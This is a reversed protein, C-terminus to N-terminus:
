NLTSLSFGDRRFNIIKLKRDEKLYGRLKSIYVDMTRSSLIDDKGWIKNLAFDRSLTNNINMVLLRMLQNEKFSLRRRNNMKKYILFRERSNYNYDGIKFEYNKKLLSNRFSNKILDESSLNTLIKYIDGEDIFTDIKKLSFGKSMDHELTKKSIYLFPIDEAIHRLDSAVNVPPKDLRDHFIVLDFSNNKFTYVAEKFNSVLVSKKKQILVYSLLKGYDNRDSVILINTKL